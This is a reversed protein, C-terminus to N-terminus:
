VTTTRRTIGKNVSIAHRRIRWRKLLLKKVSISLFIYIIADSLYGFGFSFICFKYVLSEESGTIGFPTLLDPIVMFLLFTAILLTPIYFKSAQFVHLLSEQKQNSGSTSQQTPPLRAKRYRHFLSGYTVVAIITFMLDLTPYVYMYLPDFVDIKIVGHVLSIIITSLVSIGWTVKLSFKAKDEDCYLHYKINLQIELLRDVALFMMCLYYVLSIGYGNAIDVYDKVSLAVSNKSLKLVESLIDYAAIIIESISLNILYIHEPKNQGIKYLCILFYSGTIHFVMVVVRLVIVTITLQLRM